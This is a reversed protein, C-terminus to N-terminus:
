NINNFLEHKLSAHIIQYNYFVKTSFDVVDDAFNMVLLLCNFVYYIITDLVLLVRDLMSEASRSVKSTIQGIGIVNAFHSITTTVNM